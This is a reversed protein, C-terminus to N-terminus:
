FSHVYTTSNLADPKDDKYSSVSPWNLSLRKLFKKTNSGCTQCKNPKLGVHDSMKNFTSM